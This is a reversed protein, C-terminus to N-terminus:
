EKKKRYKDEDAAASHLSIDVRGGITCRLVRQEDATVDRTAIARSKAIREDTGVSTIPTGDAVAAIAAPAIITTSSVVEGICIGPNPEGTRKMAGGGAVCAVRASLRAGRAADTALAARACLENTLTLHVTISSRTELSTRETNAHATIPTAHLEDGDAWSAPTESALSSAAASALQTAAPPSQGSPFSSQQLVPWGHTQM